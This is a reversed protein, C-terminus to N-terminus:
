GSLPRKFAYIASGPVTSAYPAVGTLEWGEESLLRLTEGLPGKLSSPALQHSFELSRHEGTRDGQWRLIAFEYRQM